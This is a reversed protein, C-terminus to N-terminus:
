GRTNKSKEYEARYKDLRKLTEEIDELKKSVDRDLTDERWVGQCRLHCKEFMDLDALYVCTMAGIRSGCKPCKKWHLTGSATIGGSVFAVFTGIILGLAIFDGM